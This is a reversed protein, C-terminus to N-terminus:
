DHPVTSTATAHAQPSFWDPPLPAQGTLDFVILRPRPPRGPRSPDPAGAPRQGRARERPQPAALLPPPADPGARSDGGGPLRPVLPGSGTPHDGEKSPPQGPIGMWPRSTPGPVGPRPGRESAQAPDPGLEKVWRHGRPDQLGFAEGEAPPHPPMPRGADRQVFEGERPVFPGRGFGGLPDAGRPDCGPPRRWPVRRQARLDPSPDDDWHLELRQVIRSEPDIWLEIRNPGPGQQDDRIARVRRMARDGSERQLPPGVGEPLPAAAETRLTFERPLAALVEDISDTLFLSEAEELWRPVGPGAPTALREMRGDPRRFWRGEADRGALFTRGDPTQAILVQHERDRVDLRAPPLTFPMAEDFVTTVAYSRDGARGSAALSREVLAAASQESRAMFISLAGVALLVMAAAALPAFTRPESWLVLTRRGVRVSRRPLASMALRVRRERSAEADDRLNCLLGHVFLEGALDRWRADASQEGGRDGVSEGLEPLLAPDICGARAEGVAGALPTDGTRGTM